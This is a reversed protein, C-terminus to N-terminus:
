ESAGQACFGLLMMAFGAFVISLFTKYVSREYFARSALSLDDPSGMLTFNWARFLWKASRCDSHQLETILYDLDKM